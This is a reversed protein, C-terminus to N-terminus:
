HVKNGEISFCLTFSYSTHLSTVSGFQGGYVETITTNTTTKSVFFVGCSLTLSGQQNFSLLLSIDAGTRDSFWWCLYVRVCCSSDCVFAQTKAEKRKKKSEAKKKKKQYDRSATFYFFLSGTSSIVHFLANYMSLLFLPFTRFFFFFFSKAVYPWYYM